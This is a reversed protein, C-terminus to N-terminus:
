SLSNPGREDSAPVLRWVPSAVGAVANLEGLEGLEAAEAPAFSRVRLWDAVWPCLDAVVISWAAMRYHETQRRIAAAKHAMLAATSANNIATPLASRWCSLLAPTPHAVLRHACPTGAAPLLAPSTDEAVAHRAMHILLGSLPWAAAASGLAWEGMQLEGRLEGPTWDVRGKYFV